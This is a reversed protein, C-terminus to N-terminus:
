ALWRAVLWAMAALAPLCGKSNPRMVRLRAQELTIGEAEAHQEIGKWVDRQFGALWGCAVVDAFILLASM